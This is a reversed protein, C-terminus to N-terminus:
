LFNFVENIVAFLKSVLPLNSPKYPSLIDVNEIVDNNVDLEGDLTGNGDEM